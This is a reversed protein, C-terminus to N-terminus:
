ATAILGLCNELSCYSFIFARSVVSNGITFLKTCEKGLENTACCRIDTGFLEHLVKEEKKV